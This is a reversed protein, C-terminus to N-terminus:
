AREKLFHLLRDTFADPQEFPPLHGSDAIVVKRAGPILLLMMDAMRQFDPLDHEGVMVLTRATIETLRETEPRGAPYPLPQARLWAHGPYDAIIARLQGALPSAMAPAFLPDGMWAELGATLGHTRAIPIYPRTGGWDAFRYGFLAADVPILAGCREPHHLAFSVAAGGGMSLGCVSARRIKLHDLVAAIDGALTTGEPAPGSLGHGALDPLILRLGAAALDPAVHAWMRRDLTHGHILVLPDGHGTEEYYIHGARPM